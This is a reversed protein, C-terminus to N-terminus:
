YWTAEIIWPAVDPLEYKIQEPLYLTTGLGRGILCIELLVPRPRALWLWQDSVTCLLASHSCRQPMKILWWTDCMGNSKIQLDIWNLGSANQDASPFFLAQFDFICSQSLIPRSTDILSLQRDFPGGVTITALPCLSFTAKDGVGILLCKLCAVCSLCPTQKEKLM